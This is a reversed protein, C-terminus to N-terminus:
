RLLITLPQTFSPKAAAVGIHVLVQIPSFINATTWTIPMVEVALYDNVSNGLNM